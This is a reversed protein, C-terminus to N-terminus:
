THKKRWYRILKGKKIKDLEDKIEEHLEKMWRYITARPHGFIRSAETVGNRIATRVVKIKHEKPYCRRNVPSESFFKRCDKCYFRQKGHPKGKKIIRGSGCWPCVM